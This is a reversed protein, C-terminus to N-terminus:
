GCAGGLHDGLHAFISDLIQAHVFVPRQLANVEVTKSAPYRELVPATDRAYGQLRERMANDDDDHRGGSRRRGGVRVQLVEDDDCKLHVLLSVKTVDALGDAQGITRPIGDLVLFGNVPDHQGRRVLTGVHQVFAAMVLGDPVLEGRELIPQLRRGPRTDTESLSRLVQGMEVHTFNPIADLIRGQTGKGAAPKGFLLLARSRIM